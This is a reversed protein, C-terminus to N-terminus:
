RSSLTKEEGLPRYVPLTVTFVTGGPLGPYEEANRSEVVIEGGFKKVIGYSVSLGLGTGEGVDKTTFFPDFIKALDKRKIGCGNDRFIVEVYNMQENLRSSISLKGGHKMADVGNTVLNLFVQQMQSSDGRVPPLSSALNLQLEVKKVLLTNLSVDVVKKLDDNVMTVATVKGPVRAFTLLNEVIRQCNTAQRKIIELIQHEKGEPTAKELLHDTFGLIICIPNNIEHAVGAALTGISALKETRLLEQEQLQHRSTVDRSFVLVHSSRGDESSLPIFHSLFWFLKDGVALDHEVQIDQRTDIIEHIISLLKAASEPAFAKSLGQGVYYEQNNGLFDAGYQNISRFQGFYDVVFILDKAKEIYTRYRHESQAIEDHSKRLAETKIRVEEELALTLTKGFHILYYGILIIAMVLVGSGLFAPIYVWHVVNEVESTPAAVAVSWLYSPDQESLHIPTFAVFKKVKGLEGRHWGTHYSGTGEEGKLMKDKQIANVKVYNISPDRAQRVLFASQGVFDKEVHFVFTGNNDIVWAYGTKGSRLDRTFRELFQTSDIIFIAVRPLRVTSTNEAPPELLHVNVPAAMIMYPHHAGTSKRVSYESVFVRNENGSTICWRFFPQDALSLGDSLLELQAGNSQVMEGAATLLGIAVVGSQEVTEMARKIRDAAREPSESLTPAVSLAHLERKLFHINQDAMRAIHRALILQQQNFDESIIRRLVQTTFAGLVLGLLLLIIIIGGM